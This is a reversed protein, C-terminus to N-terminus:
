PKKGSLERFHHSSVVNEGAEAQLTIKYDDVREIKQLGDIHMHKEIVIPLSKAKARAAEWDSAIVFVNTHSEFVGASLADYYGLHVLFLYM